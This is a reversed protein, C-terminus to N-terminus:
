HPCFFAPIRPHINTIAFIIQYHLLFLINTAPYRNTDNRQSSFISLLESSFRDEVPQQKPPNHKKNWEDNKEMLDILGGLNKGTIIGRTDINEDIKWGQGSKREGWSTVNTRGTKGDKSIEIVLDGKYSDSKPLILKSLRFIREPALLTIDKV